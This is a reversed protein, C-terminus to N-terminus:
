ACRDRGVPRADDERAKGPCRFPVAGAVVAGEEGDVSVTAGGLHEPLRLRCRPAADDPIRRERWVPRLDREGVAVAIALVAHPHHVGVAAVRVLDEGAVRTRKARVVDRGRRTARRRDSPPGPRGPCRYTRSRHDARLTPPADSNQQGLRCHEAPTGQRTATNWGGAQGVSADLWLGFTNGCAAPIM